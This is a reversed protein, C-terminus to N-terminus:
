SVRRRHLWGSACTVVATSTGVCAVLAAGECLHRSGMARLHAVCRDASPLDVNVVRRYAYACLIVHTVM